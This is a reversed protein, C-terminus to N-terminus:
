NNQAGATVWKELLMIRCDSLKNGGRPMAPYGALQKTVGLLRGDSAVVKVGNYSDLNVGGSAGTSNHCGKCNTNLLPQITGSFTFKSSDCSGSSCGTTNPAGMRIWRNIKGVQDATLPSNPPPPMIKRSDDETIKEYLETENPDGARFKKAIITQYSTFVYGDQASAADHCGSKACNSIFIPLIDREFCLGTDPPTTTGGGNNNNTSDGTGSGTTSTSPQIDSSKHACSYIITILALALVSLKATKM